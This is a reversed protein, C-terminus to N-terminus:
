GVLNPKHLIFTTGEGIRSKIQISGGLKELSRRVSYLGLGSGGQEPNVRFFKDFVKEQLSEDIGIGNDEFITRAGDENFKVQIKVYSKKAPDRYRIANSLLNSFISSLCVPDSFFSDRQEIALDIRVSDAGAMYRMSQISEEAIKRFNVEQPIFTTSGNKSYTIINTISQNMRDASSELLSFYHDLNKRKSELKMLYLLGKISMLPARLDHAALYVFPDNEKASHSINNNMITDDLYSLPLLSPM